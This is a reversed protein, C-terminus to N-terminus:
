QAAAEFPGEFAVKGFDHLGHVCVRRRYEREVDRRSQM